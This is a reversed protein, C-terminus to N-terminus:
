SLRISLRKNKAMSVWGREALSRRMLEITVGFDAAIEKVAEGLLDQRVRQQSKWAGYIQRGRPHRLLMEGPVLFVAAYLNAEQERQLLRPDRTQAWRGYRTVFLSELEDAHWRIHGLEHGLTDARIAKLDKNDPVFAHMESNVLVLRNAVDCVGLQGRPLPFDNVRFGCMSVILDEVWHAPPRGEFEPYIIMVRETLADRDIRAREILEERQLDNRECLNM